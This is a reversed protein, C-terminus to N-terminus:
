LGKAYCWLIGKPVFAWKFINNGSLSRGSGDRNQAFAFFAFTIIKKSSCWFFPAFTESRYLWATFRKTLASNNRCRVRIRPFTDWFESVWETPALRERMGEVLLSLPDFKQACIYSPQEKPAHQSCFIWHSRGSEFRVFSPHCVCNSNRRPALHVVLGTRQSPSLSFFVRHRAPPTPSSIRELMARIM